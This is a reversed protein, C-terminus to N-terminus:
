PMSPRIGDGYSRGIFMVMKCSAFDVSYNSAGITEAFGAEKSLNCAAAHTYINASGLANM